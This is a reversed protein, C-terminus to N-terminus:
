VPPFQLPFADMKKGRFHAEWHHWDLSNLLHIQRDLVPAGAPKDEPDALKALAKWAGALRGAREESRSHLMMHKTDTATDVWKRLETFTVLFRDETPKAAAEDDLAEAKASSASSAPESAAAPLQSGSAAAPADGGTAAAAEELDLLANCKAALAEVLASKKEDLAKKAATAETGDDDHCKRAVHEAIAGTDIASIIKDAAAIVAEYGKPTKEKSATESTRSLGELLLPMHAPYATLLEARTSQYLTEQEPTDTKLDKLFKVKTDRIAEGLKEEASKEDNAATTDAGSGNNDNSPKAPPCCLQLPVSHPAASGNSTCLGLSLSGVLSSGPAADKPMKDDPLPGLFLATAAGELIPAPSKFAKGATISAANSDYVPVALPSDLKRSLVLPLARLKELEAAKDHRLVVRITYDDKKAVQIIM